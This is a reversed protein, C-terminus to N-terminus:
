WVGLPSAVPRTLRVPTKSIEASPHLDILSRWHGSHDLFLPAFLPDGSSLFDDLTAAYVLRRSRNSTVEAAFALIHYAREVSQTLFLVRFRPREWRKGGVLWNGLVNKQYADYVALKQRISNSAYSDISATSNDIEFAVNFIRGRATLKFFCDPQVQNDGVKFSLENERIFRDIIVRKARCARYTEVIVDALRFTHIFLSPPVEAFYARTPVPKEPGNITQWGAPTLKYYNRLGGGVNATSFARVLDGEALAQLRERLRREDAFSGGPFAISAKYLLATTAPTWSLLQLLDTDRPTIEVHTSMSRLSTYAREGRRKMM